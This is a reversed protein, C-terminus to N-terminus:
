KKILWEEMCIIDRSQNNIKPFYQNNKQKVVYFLVCAQNVNGCKDRCCIVGESGNCSLAFIHHSVVVKVM